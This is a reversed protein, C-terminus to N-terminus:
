RSGLDVVPMAKFTGFVGVGLSLELFELTELLVLARLHIIKMAGDIHNYKYIWLM